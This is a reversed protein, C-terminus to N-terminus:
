KLKQAEVRGVLSSNQYELVNAHTEMHGRTEGQICMCTCTRLIHVGDLAVPILTSFLLSLSYFFVSYAIVAYPAFEWCCPAPRSPMFSPLTAAM